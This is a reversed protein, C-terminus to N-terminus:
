ESASCIAILDLANELGEDRYFFDSASYRAIFEDEPALPEGSARFTSLLSRIGARLGPPFLKKIRARSSSTDANMRRARDLRNFEISYLPEEAFLGHVEVRPFFTELLQRLEDPRFERIHFPYWPKMGPDLRLCANPTTFLVLGTGSLVRKLEGIYAGYDVIHEIVQFSVAMDFSSDEFPLREGDVTFFRIRTGYREAAM